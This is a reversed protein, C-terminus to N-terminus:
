PSMPTSPIASCRRSSRAAGERGPLRDRPPRTPVARPGGGDLSRRPPLHRLRRQRLLRRARGAAQRVRSRREERGQQVPRERAGRDRRARPQRLRGPGRPRRHRRGERGAPRDAGPAPRGGQGASVPRRRGPRGDAPGPPQGPDPQRRSDLITTLTPLASKIRRDDAVGGDATQPVNFDVRVLVKRGTVDIDRVTQKAM